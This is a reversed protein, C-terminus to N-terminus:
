TPKAKQLWKIERFFIGAPMDQAQCTNNM